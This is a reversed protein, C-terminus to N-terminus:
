WWRAASSRQGKARGARRQRGSTRRGTPRCARSRPGLPRIGGNQRGNNIIVEYLLRRGRARGYTWGSCTRTSGSRRKWTPRAWSTGPSPAPVNVLAAGIHNRPEWLAFVGGTPDSGLAMRGARARRVSADVPQREAGLHAARDRRRRRGHHLQELPAPHGQGREQDSQRALAAVQKGDVSCMTYTERRRGAHRSSGASCGGYFDKAADTDTTGLDCGRSRARPTATKKV